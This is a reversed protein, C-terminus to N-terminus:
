HEVMVKLCNFCRSVYFAIDKKMGSWWYIDKLDYYMKHARPHISYKSKHAEEMILTRVDGKFPVWIRDLYYLARDSRREILEDLGGQMKEPEDSAEKQYALIKDQISSQLTMNIAQVRKSKVREKRSLAIAVVNEKGPHYHIECDYDSFLEIVVIEEQKHEKDKASMLHRVKEKPREGIVRLVKGKQLPTRVVKEHFIIEVKHKSLWDMGIIMNFSGHEFPMLDIDFVHGDIELKCGRIVKNIEVLQGSAIKIEYSFALNSPEIGTMINSDQRAEEAGLMFARPLAAKFHDTSGCEFCAGHAATPNRATVPNVMKHAAGNYERRVPNVTTAFANGIRTRKNDDKVNRDKSPERGNGKKKPNKNFSGNRIAADTLTCMAKQITTPKTAAVMRALEHFRDTYAAHGDGVM